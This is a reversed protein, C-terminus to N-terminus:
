LPYFSFKKMRKKHAKEPSETLKREEGTELQQATKGMLNGNNLHYFACKLCMKSTFMSGAM